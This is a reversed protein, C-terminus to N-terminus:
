KSWFILFEIMNDLKPQFFAFNKEDVNFSFYFFLKIKSSKVWCIINSKQRRKHRWLILSILPRLIRTQKFFFSPFFFFYFHGFFNLGGHLKRETFSFSREALTKQFLNRFAIEFFYFFYSRFNKTSPSVGRINM